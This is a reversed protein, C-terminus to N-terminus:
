VAATAVALARIPMANSKSSITAMRYKRLFPIHLYIKHSCSNETHKINNYTKKILIKNASWNMIIAVNKGNQKTEVLCFSSLLPVHM